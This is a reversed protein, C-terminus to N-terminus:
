KLFREPSQKSRSLSPPFRESNFYFTEKIWMVPCSCAIKLLMNKKEDM